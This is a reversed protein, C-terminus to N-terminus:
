ISAGGSREPLEYSVPFNFHISDPHMSRFYLYLACHQRWVFETSGSFRVFNNTLL